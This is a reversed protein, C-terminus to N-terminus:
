RRAEHISESMTQAPTRWFRRMVIPPVVAISALVIWNSPSSIHASFGVVCVALVWVAALTTKTYESSM